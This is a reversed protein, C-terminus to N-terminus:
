NDLGQQFKINKATEHANKLNQAINFYRKSEDANKDVGDGKKYMMSVNACAFMNGLECAKKAFQFAQKMDSKILYEINKNKEPNHPNFEKPNKPVGTLYMGSLYHCAMEENM